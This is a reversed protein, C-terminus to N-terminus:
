TRRCSGSRRGAPPTDLRRSLEDGVTRVEDLLVRLHEEGVDYHIISARLSARGRLVTPSSFARGRANVEEAIALNLRDLASADLARGPPVYRFCVISLPVPATLELDDAEEIWGAFRSALARHRAITEAIGRRGLRMLVAFSKLARPARSLQVGLEFPWPAERTADDDLRLYAPNVSFTARQIAEERVLVCGCEIPVALWKHPDLAVSHARGIAALHGRMEPDAAAVGGYAGDVHFWLDHAACVDAIEDLPDIAGSSVTGSTAVVCFPALGAARDAAIAERLLDVRMRLQEDVPITRVYRGGLGLLEAAKRISSHSEESEYLVLRPDDLVGTERVDLGFRALAWQRAVALATLNAMSGGSVLLGRSRDTPFGILEMIWRTVVGELELAGHEGGAGCNSNLTTALLDGLVGIPAPASTIWAFFGPHGNGLPFPMVHAALFDLIADESAGEEPLAVARLRELQDSPLSSRVPNRPLEELHKGAIDLAREGLARFRAPSMTLPSAPERRSPRRPPHLDDSM